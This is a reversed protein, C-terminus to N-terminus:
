RPGLMAPPQHPLPFFSNQRFYSIKYEPVYVVPSYRLRFPFAPRCHRPVPNIFASVLPPSPLVPIWRLVLFVRFYENAYVFSAIEPIAWLVSFDVLSIFGVGSFARPSLSRPFFDRNKQYFHWFRQTSFPPDLRPVAHRRPWFFPLNVFIPALPFTKSFLSCRGARYFLSDAAWSTRPLVLM